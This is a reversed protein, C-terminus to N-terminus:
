HTVEGTYLHVEELLLTFINVFGKNRLTKQIMEHSRSYTAIIIVYDDKKDLYDDISNVGMNDVITTNQKVDTVVFAEAFFGNRELFTRVIKGVTGAGYILVRKGNKLSLLFRDINEHILDIYRVIEEKKELLPYIVGKEIEDAMIENFQRIIGRMEESNQGLLYMTAVIDEHLNKILQHYSALIGERRSIMLSDRMGKVYDLGKRQAYAIQKHGKRYSYTAENIQYVRGVYGVVTLLFPPDEGKLYDPFSIKKSMILEKKYIFRVYGGYTSFDEKKIWRDELFRTGNKLGNYIYVGNRYDYLYGGCIEANNRKAKIYLHELTKENPYFDDADMFAIYEGIAEEIGKNRAIGPGMNEQQIVRMNELKKSYEALVAVTEDTSGDDICIIEIDNLTQERVSDICERIYQGANHCPIIVSVKM